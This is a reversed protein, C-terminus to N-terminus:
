PKVSYQSIRSKRWFIIPEENSEVHKHEKRLCNKQELFQASLLFIGQVRAGCFCM